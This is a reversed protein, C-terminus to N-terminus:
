PGVTVPGLYCPELDKTVVFLTYEGPALGTIDEDNTSPYNVGEKTAWRLYRITNNDKILDVSISGDSSTSSSANTVTTFSLKPCPGFFGFELSMRQSPPGCTQTNVGGWNENTIGPRIIYGFPCNGGFCTSPPNLWVEAGYGWFFCVSWTNGDCLTANYTTETHLARAFGKVVQPDTCTIGTDNFTGSIRMYDFQLSTDISAQFANWQALKASGPAQGSIFTDSWSVAVQALSVQAIFM